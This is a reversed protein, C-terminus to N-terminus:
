AERCPRCPSPSTARLSPARRRGKLPCLCSPPQSRPRSPPLSPLRRPRSAPSKTGRRRLLRGLGRLRPRMLLSPRPRPRSRRPSKPSRAQPRRKARPIAMRGRTCARILASPSLPRRTRALSGATGNLSTRQTGRCDSDASTSSSCPLPGATMLLATSRRM